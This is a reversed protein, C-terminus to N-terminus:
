RGVAMLTFMTTTAAIGITWLVFYTLTAWRRPEWLNEGPASM